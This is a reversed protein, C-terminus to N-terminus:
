VVSDMWDSLNQQRSITDYRDMEFRSLNSSQNGMLAAKVKYPDYASTSSLISPKATASLVNTMMSSHRGSSSHTRLLPNDM